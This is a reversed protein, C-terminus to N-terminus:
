GSFPVLGVFGSPAGTIVLSDNEPPRLPGTHQCPHLALLSAVQEEASRQGSVLRRVHIPLKGKKVCQLLYRGAKSARSNGKCPKRLERVRNADLSYYGCKGCYAVRGDALLQHSAHLKAGIIARPLCSTKRLWKSLQSLLSSVGCRICRATNGFLRIVHGAKSIMRFRRAVKPKAARVERPQAPLSLLIEM